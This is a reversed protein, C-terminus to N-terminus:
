ETNGSFVFLAIGWELARNKTIIAGSGERGASRAAHDQETM